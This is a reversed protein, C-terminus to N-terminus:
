SVAFADDAVLSLVPLSPSHRTSDLRTSNLCSLHGTQSSLYMRRTDVRPEDPSRCADRSVAATTNQRTDSSNAANHPASTRPLPPAAVRRPRRFTRFTSGDAQNRGRRENRRTSM